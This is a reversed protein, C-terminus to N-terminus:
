SSAIHERMAAADFEATELHLKVLDGISVIGVLRGFEVVPLHRFAHFSMAAMLRAETDARRATVVPTAMFDSVPAKLVSPGTRGVARILDRESVIGVVRDDDEVIVVCGIQYQALLKAIDLLSKGSTATIVGNGKSKLIHDANMKRESHRYRSSHRFRLVFRSPSARAALM